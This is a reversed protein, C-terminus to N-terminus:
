LRKRRGYEAMLLSDAKNDDEKKARSSRRLDVIPFIKHCINFSMKKTDTVQTKGTYSSKTLLKEGKFMEKQWIKPNVKTYPLGLASIIGEIAGCTFGFNFTGKASSGFLAHVNEIIVHCCDEYKTLTFLNKSLESIEPNDPNIFLPFSDIYKGNNDIISVYGKAGPDIGIYYKKNKSEQYEM